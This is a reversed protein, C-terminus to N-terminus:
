EAYYTICSKPLQQIWLRSEKDGRLAPLTDAAWEKNYCIVFGDENVEFVKGIAATRCYNELEVALFYGERLLDVDAKEQM